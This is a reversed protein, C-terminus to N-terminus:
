PTAAQGNLLEILDQTLDLSPDAWVLGQAANFIFMLERDAALEDIAPLLRNQFDVQLQQQLDQVEAEADQTLRQIEAQSDQTARQIDVQLRAIERQLSSAAEASIVNAGQQLKQQAAQLQQNLGGIRGQAETNAAEIEALKQQSLEQVKANAAQGEASEAAIRAIDVYAFKAGDPLTGGTQAAPAQAAAVGGAVAVALVTIAIVSRM